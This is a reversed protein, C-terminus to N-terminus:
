ASQLADPHDSPAFFLEIPLQEFENGQRFYINQLNPLVEAISEGTLEQLSSVVHSEENCSLRLTRVASFPHFFELWETNDMFVENEELLPDSFIELEAISSLLCPFQTGMQTMSSVRWGLEENHGDHIGLSLTKVPNTGEPQYLRIFVSYINFIVKARDFSGLARSHSIVQRMDFVHEQSFEIRFDELQPVDIRALFDELYESVGQFYFKKLTPLVATVARTFLPPHQIVQDPLLTGGFEICLYTLRTLASLGMVMAEPSIYGINSINHLSLKSLDNCSLLLQPLTPFPVGRLTLSQLRPASGGLFTAPLAPMTDYNEDGYGYVRELNLSTLAPLPEQIITALKECRLCTLWISIRSVRDRHELAAIINDTLNSSMVQIPFPPWIHLLERVPSSDSCDVFLDLRLPSSLVVYRWRRCVHLLTRWAGPWGGPWTQLYCLWLVNMSAARCFEFLELLIEVPFANITVRPSNQGPGSLYTFITPALFFIYREQQRGTKSPGDIPDSFRWLHESTLSDSESSSFPSLVLLTVLKQAVGSRPYM